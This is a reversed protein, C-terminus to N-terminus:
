GTVQGATEQSSRKKKIELSKEVYDDASKLLTEREVTDDVLDAKERLLLNQYAMADDYDARAAMAKDLMQMGEDVLGLNKDRLAAREKADKIPEDPRLNLKKKLEMRPQYTQTWNIVGISYFAEANQPDLAVHKRYYEKAEDFKKMQFYLSAIGSISGVNSADGQLVKQFEAIAQEGVQTNSESDAGPVYQSAYATALYLRANTLTPDAEIAGKFHEVAVPYQGSKFATVGKNLEDRAKLKQCGTSVLVIAALALVSIQMFRNSHKM